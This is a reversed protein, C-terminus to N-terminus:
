LFRSRITRTTQLRQVLQFSTLKLRVPYWLRPSTGNYVVVSPLGLLERVKAFAGIVSEPNSLDTSIHTYQAASDQEKLSRSAVAVQYGKAAFAQAVHQGVNAGAGLIFLVPSENAM